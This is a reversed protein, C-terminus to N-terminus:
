DAAQSGMGGASGQLTPQASMLRRGARKNRYMADDAYKALSLEDVGDQPYLALGLSCTIELKVGNLEMPLAVQNFIKELVLQATEPTVPGTLLVVFEDGGIRGVTDTERVSGRIRKAVTQLLLDGVAHGHQDNIPKFRDLDLLILGLSENYRRANALAFHFREDFHARNALETLPDHLAMFRVREESQRRTNIDSLTGIVRLPAQQDDREAVMGRSLVWNWQGQPGAVRYESVLTSAQGDLCQQFESKVRALDQPHVRACLLSLNPDALAPDLGMITKWRLSCHINGSSLDWEWVGDGAGELAFAWRRESERVALTMREALQQARDRSTLLLWALLSLLVSLLGGVWPVARLEGAGFREAFEPGASLRLTWDQGELHLRRDQSQQGAAPPEGLALSSARFLLRAESAPAGDYFTLALGPPIEAYLGALLEQSNLAALVWAAPPEAAGGDLRGALPGEHWVPLALLYGQGRGLQLAQLDLLGSCTLRARGQARLLLDQLAPLAMLDLGLARRSPSHGPEVQAVRLGGPGSRAVMLGQLGAFDSDLPLAQIYRRLAAEDAQPQALLFGQVGQMLQRQAGLQLLFRQGLGRMESEFARRQSAQTQQWEFRWYGLTFFLGALLILLPLACRSPLGWVRVHKVLWAPKGSGSMRM